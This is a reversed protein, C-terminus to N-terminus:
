IMRQRLQYFVDDIANIETNDIKALELQVTDFYLQNNMDDLKTYYHVRRGLIFNNQQDNSMALFRDITSLMQQKDEPLHGNLEPLLNIAHYNGYNGNVGDLLSLLQRQEQVMEVETLPTFSGNNVMEDLDTDGKVALSLIRIEEPDIQNLLRATEIVHSQSLAKGGLGLIIFTMMKMGAQKAHEASKLISKPTIGKKMKKLVDISGSEMGCYLMNLGADCIAKMEQASKKSMTQARGYSSVQKLDPFAQKLTNLIELLDDTPMAFSDGDQLFCREFQRGKYYEKAAWIDRKIDEVPRISFTMGKFLTCFSCKNWPCGQTTRILLSDAESPPRIPGQQFNPQQMFRPMSKMTNNNITRNSKAQKTSM